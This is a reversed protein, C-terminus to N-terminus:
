RSPRTARVVTISLGSLPYATPPGTEFGAEGVLASLEANPVASTSRRLLHGWVGHGRRHGPGHGPPHGREAHVAHADLDALVLVGDPRLVRRVEALFESQSVDDLHHLMLSSFIRDVSADPLPLEQGFGREWDIALRRRRTKRAARALAKPDPDLGALDLGPRQRALTILLNGTGCGLDVVRMGPQPDALGIMLRHLGGVGFVRHVADYLPTLFGRGLGPIYDREHSVTRTM